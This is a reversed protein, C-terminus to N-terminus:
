RFGVIRRCPRHHGGGGGGSSGCRRRHCAAFLVAALGSRGRLRRRPLRVGRFVFLFSIGERVVLGLFLFIFFPFLFCLRVLRRPPELTTCSSSTSPVPFFCMRGKGVVHMRCPACCSLFIQPFTFLLFTHSKSLHRRGRRRDGGRCASAPEHIRLIDTHHVFLFLAVCFFNKLFHFFLLPSHFLLFRKHPRDQVCRIHTRICLTLFFHATFPNERKTVINRKHDFAVCHFLGQIGNERKM